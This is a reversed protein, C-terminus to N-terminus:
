VTGGNARIVQGNVWGSDKGALFSVVSAIDDPEGLRGQPNQAIIGKLQEDSKGRLFLKTGVPGPAVANVTIKRAGLEKAVVHTLAEVAAKTAVYASYTPYLTGVVSTSLNIIRGNERLRKGAERMGNFTGKLNIAVTRDFMADTTDIIPALDMVGANNVLVDIGGFARQAEDFMATVDAPEAVNGQRVLAQGGSEVISKAVEDAEAKSGSYNVLVNFGDQALRRAIAAGIGRSAGTVIATRESVKPV